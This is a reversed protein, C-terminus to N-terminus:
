IKKLGAYFFGDMHNQGPLCQHGWTLSIGWDVKVPDYVASPTEKLFAEIVNQNESSLISCTAYLLYGQPKLLPWLAKLISLQQDALTQIDTPQRILKIDPHRRLVGTASCPADVLIRDFLIGDWWTSPLLADGTIVKINERNLELRQLNDEIRKNRIANLDLAILKAIKPEM